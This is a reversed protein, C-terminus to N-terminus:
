LTKKWVAAANTSFDTIKYVNSPRKNDYSLAKDYVTEQMVPAGNAVNVLFCVNLM